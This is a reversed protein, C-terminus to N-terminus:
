KNLAALLNSKELHTRGTLLGPLDMKVESGKSEQHFEYVLATCSVESTYDLFGIATPVRNAGAWVWDRPSTYSAAPSSQVLPKNTVVFVIVRYYGRNSSFLAQLYSAVSFIRPPQPTLPWRSGQEM